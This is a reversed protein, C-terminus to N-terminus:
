GTRSHLRDRVAALIMGHLDEVPLTAQFLRFRGPEEDALRRYGEQVRRHFAIEEQEFRDEV